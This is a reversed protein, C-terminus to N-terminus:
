NELILATDFATRYRWEPKQIQHSRFDILLWGHPRSTIAEYADLLEEWRRKKPELQRFLMAATTQDAPFSFLVIYDCQLRSQRSQKTFISQMITIISVGLHHVGAVYMNKVFEAGIQHMLDDVVILTQKEEAQNRKLQDMIKLIDDESPLGPYLTVDIKSRADEEGPEPPSLLRDRPCIRRTLETRLRHYKPQGISLPACFVIISDFPQDHEPRLLYQDVLFYTKGSGSPGSIQMRYPHQPLLPNGLNRYIFAADADAM